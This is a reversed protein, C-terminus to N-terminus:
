THSGFLGSGLRVRFGFHRVQKLLEDAQERSGSGGSMESWLWVSRETEVFGGSQEGHGM